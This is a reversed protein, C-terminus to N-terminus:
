GNTKRDPDPLEPRWEQRYGPHDAYPLALVRMYWCPWRAMLHPNGDLRCEACYLGHGPNHRDIIARKAAIEAHIRAPVWRRFYTRIQPHLGQMGTRDGFLFPETSDWASREDKDLQQHLWTVLDPTEGM